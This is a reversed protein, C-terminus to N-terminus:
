KPKGGGWYMEVCRIHASAEEWVRPLGRLFERDYRPKCDIMGGEKPFWFEQNVIVHYTRNERRVLEHQHSNKIYWSLTQSSMHREDLLNSFTQRREPDYGVLIVLPRPM